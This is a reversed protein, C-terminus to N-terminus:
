RDGREYDILEDIWDSPGTRQRAKAFQQEWEALSRTPLLVDIPPASPRRGVVGVTMLKLRLRDRRSLNKPDIGLGLVDNALSNVSIGLDRAQTALRAHLEDDVRLLLQKM